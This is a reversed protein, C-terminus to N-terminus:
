RNAAESRGGDSRATDSRGAEPSSASAEGQRARVLTVMERRTLYTLRDQNAALRSFMRSVFATVMLAAGVVLSVGGAVGAWVLASTPDGGIDQDLLLGVPISGGLILVTSLLGFFKFPRHEQYWALIINLTRIGYAVLNGAVRSKRDAFYRVQLPVEVIPLGKGCLDLFTEQTYTFAGQLNLRLLAELSYARFGCSVDHFRRGVLGSVLASMLHNGYRKLPPMDPTLAPDVFRSGTAMEAQGALVPAILTPIDAPDFQGDADMWVLLDYADLLARESGTRFAAGVGLNLAHRVVRAGAAEALAASDDSSGDDIVLVDVTDVGPIQQPIQGIVTGITAAENLCPIAVLLRVPAAAARDEETAAQSLRESKREFPSVIQNV